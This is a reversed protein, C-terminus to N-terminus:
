SQPVDREMQVARFAISRAVGLAAAIDGYSRGEAAMRAAERRQAPKLSHRRGLVVGNAKAKAMGATVLKSHDYDLNRGHVYGHCRGCLWVTPNDPDKRNLPILHHRHVDVASGCASCLRLGYAM